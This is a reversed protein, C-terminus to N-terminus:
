SMEHRQDREIGGSYMPFAGTKQHKWLTYFFGTAHFINFANTINKSSICLAVISM